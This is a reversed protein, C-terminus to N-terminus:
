DFAIQAADRAIVWYAGGRRVSRLTNVYGPLDPGFVNWTGTAADWSYVAAVSTSAGGFAALPSEDVGPWAILNAGRQLQLQPIPPATPPPAPVTPAPGATDPAMGFDTVWYWGYPADADYRRAVGIVVYGKNLMNEDHGPSAKWATMAEAATDWETGAALNEGAPGGYGCDAIRTPTPRGLSDTHAFYRKTALDIVMWRASRTLTPSVGLPGAGNQVRYTNILGIFAQEESDLSTGPVNCPGAARVDAGRGGAGALLGLAVATAGLAMALGARASLTPHGM